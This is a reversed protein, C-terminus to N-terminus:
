FGENCFNTAGDVGIKDFKKNKKSIRFSGLISASKGIHKQNPITARQFLRIPGFQRLKSFPWDDRLDISMAMMGSRIEFM